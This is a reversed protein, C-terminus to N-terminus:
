AFIYNFARADSQTMEPGSKMGPLHDGEPQFGDENAVYNVKYVYGDDGVYQYSGRIELAQKEEDGLNKILGRQQVITGDETEYNNVFSGDSNVEYDQRLVQVPKEEKEIIRSAPSATTIVILAALM